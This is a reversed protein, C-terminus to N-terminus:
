KRSIWPSNKIYFRWPVLKYPGQINLGVRSTAIIHEEPLATTTDEVWINDGALSVGNHLKNLGFAKALAGPGKCLRKDDDFIGRRQRMYELGQLPQVARILIAHSTNETGTVINLMDHIGYCIYMYVVGGAAYMIENRATRRNNFAHSGLDEPGKYAETEVIIGSCLLGNIHTYLIKGLLSRAINVVDQGQYFSLPLKM